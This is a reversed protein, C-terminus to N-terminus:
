GRYAEPSALWAQEDPTSPRGLIANRHPFRGFRHVIDRHHLAWKLNATLGAAEVLAVSRDQDAGDESHMFPMYLFAKASDDLASDLGAGIARGAVERATAETAFGEPTDRFMNLPFQDLLIVLALAGRASQEWATLRGDRAQQWLACFRERIEQDLAPTSHFWFPRVPDSFWFELVSEADV